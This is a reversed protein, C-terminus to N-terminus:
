RPVVTLKLTPPPLTPHTKSAFGHVLDTRGSGMTERVLIFTALGNTDRNLFDVLSPGSISRTGTLTGQAIEFDGVREVSELDLATGGPRNAPANDWRITREDWNDLSEDTLGYVAFTADPVESAFGLGTPAFSYSLQADIIKMGAVPALDFGVYAKRSYNPNPTNKVLLLSAAPKQTPVPPQVYADKGRGTGTSLQVVTAQDSAPAPSSPRETLPDFDAVDDRAFRLNKGTHMEATRGTGRHQVDVRGNFVQVDAREASTVHVGFETGFDKVIATPTDVIFGIAPPPVKAVLRGGHLICRQASILELDAPAELAVEAGSDFTIRALGEALRMRGPPLRSGVVTSLPGEEWKCSKGVSLTAVPVAQARAFPGWEGLWIGLLLAAAVALSGTIWRRWRRRVPRMPVTAPASAERPPGLMAPDGASWQLCAHQHLYAIYFQKAEPRALVLAELRREQEPTSRGEVVAECLTQLEDRGEFPGSM